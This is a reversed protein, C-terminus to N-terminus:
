YTIILSFYVGIVARVKKVKYLQVLALVIFFYLIIVPARFSSMGTSTTSITHLVYILTLM